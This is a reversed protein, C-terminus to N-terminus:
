RDADLASRRVGLRPSTRQIRQITRRNGRRNAVFRWTVAGGSLRELGATRVENRQDLGVTGRPYGFGLQLPTLLRSVMTHRRLLDAREPRTIILEGDGLSRPEHPHGALVQTTDGSVM